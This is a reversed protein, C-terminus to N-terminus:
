KSSDLLSDVCQYFLDDYFNQYVTLLNAKYQPIDSEHVRFTYSYVYEAYIPSCYVQMAHIRWISSMRQQVLNDKYHLNSKSDGGYTTIYGEANLAMQIANNRFKVNIYYIGVASLHSLYSSGGYGVGDLEHHVQVDVDQGLVISFMHKLDDINLCDNGLLDLAARAAHRTLILM